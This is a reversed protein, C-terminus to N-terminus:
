RLLSVSLGSLVTLIESSSPGLTKVSAPASSLALSSQSRIGVCLEVVSAAMLSWSISVKENYEVVIPTRFGHGAPLQLM